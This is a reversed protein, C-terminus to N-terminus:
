PQAGEMRDTRVRHRLGAGDSVQAASSQPGGVVAPLRRLWFAFLPGVTVAMAVTGLGVRGGFAAGTLAMTAELVIRARAPTTGALRALGFMTSDLASAGFGGCFMMVAGLMMVTTGVGFEAWRVVVGEPHPAFPELLGVTIGTLVPIVVMGACPPMGLVAALLAFGLGAVVATMGLSMGTREHLADQVAFLPGNGVEATTTMLYGYSSVLSGILVLTVRAPMARSPAAYM